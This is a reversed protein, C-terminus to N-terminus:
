QWCNSGACGQLTTLTAALGAKVTAYAPDAHKSAMQFPDLALDYLEEQNGQSPHRLFAYQATRVGRFNQYPKVRADLLLATRWPSTPDLWLDDLSRGDQPLAAAAGALELVTPAIDVSAVLAAVSQGAPVGPGRVILPVHISEEYPWGLGAAHKASRSNIRHQGFMQGQDSLFLIYTNGLLGANALTQVTADIAEDVAQLTELRRRYEETMSTIAGSSLLPFANGRMFSPKDGMQAENFSPAQPLPYSAYTGAHRAAPLPGPRGGIGHVATFSLQLFFPKGDTASARRTIYDVAQDRQLDTIYTASQQVTPCGSPLAPPNGFRQLVGNANVVYDLYRGVENAVSGYWEDWGPPLELCAPTSDGPDDDETGYGNLYKGVHATHYGAAQLWVPLTQSHDLKAYGGLPPSNGLVGHNHGYQGTLISARTPCCLPYSSFYADFRTGAAILAASTLPMEALSALDQNDTVVLVFNPRPQQGRLPAAAAWLVGVLLATEVSPALV